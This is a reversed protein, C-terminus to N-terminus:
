VEYIEEVRKILRFKKKYRDESKRACDRTQDLLEVAEKFDDCNKVQDYDVWYNESIEHQIIYEVKM